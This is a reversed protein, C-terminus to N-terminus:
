ATSFIRITDSPQLGEIKITLGVYVGGPSGCAFREERCFIEGEPLGKPRGSVAAVM